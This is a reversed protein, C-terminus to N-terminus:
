LGTSVWPLRPPLAALAAGATPLLRELTARMHRTCRCGCPRQKTAMGQSRVARQHFCTCKIHLRREKPQRGLFLWCAGVELTFVYLCAYVGAIGARVIFLIALQWGFM